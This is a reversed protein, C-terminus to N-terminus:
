KNGGNRIELGDFKCTAHYEIDFYNFKVEIQKGNPATISWECDKNHLYTPTGPSRIIGHTSYYNGGCV